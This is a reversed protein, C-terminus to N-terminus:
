NKWKNVIHQNLLPKGVRLKSIIKLIPRLNAAALRRVLTLPPKM